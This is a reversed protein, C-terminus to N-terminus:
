QFVRSAAQLIPLGGNMGESAVADSAAMTTVISCRYPGDADGTNALYIDLLAPETRIVQVVINAAPARGAMVAHLTVSRWNMAEGEVPLRYWIIGAMGAPPAGTWQRVMSAISQPDSRMARLVTGPPWAPVPGDAGLGLLLGDPSFGALYGYTPLAVRFPVGIGAAEDVYRRSEEPDCLTMSDEPGAPQQLSHVQLVFSGATRALEEFDDEKLWSPLATIVVPIPAIARKIAGVWVAYGALKSDACDFDVQLEAVKLQCREANAIAKACVSCIQATQDSGPLMAAADRAPLPGIRIALGVSSVSRAVAPYDPAVTTVRGVPDRPSIEAALIVLRRFHPSEQQVATRVASTWERQWIYADQVIPITAIHAGVAPPSASPELHVGIAIAIACIVLALGISRTLM